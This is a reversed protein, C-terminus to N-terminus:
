EEQTREYDAVLPGLEDLLPGLFERVGLWRGVAHRYVPRRVQTASATRVQRMAGPSGAGAAAPLLGAFGHIRRAALEWDAVLDEYRLELVREPPVVQSWHAMVDHYSRYARGLDRLDYSYPLENGFYLRYQSLCCDAPHRRCHIFRSGPLMASILGMWLYNGPMKDIVVLPEAGVRGRLKAMCARGRDALSLERGPVEGDMASGLRTRLRRGGVALGDLAEEAARTEGATAAHPHSAVIHEVLSTGSRPMGIIFLPRAEAFGAQSASAHWAPTVAQELFRVLRRLATDRWPFLAKQMRGARAYHAFAVATEGVDEFARAAAYHAEVRRAPPLEDARAVAVNALRFALDGVAHRHDMGFLRLATVNGPDLDLVRAFGAQSEESRGLRRQLLALEFWADPDSPALGTARTLEALAEDGRDQAALAKGRALSAIGPEALGPAARGVMAPVDQPRALQDVTISVWDRLLDDPPLGRDIASRLAAAAAECDGAAVLCGALQRLLPVSQPHRRCARRAAAIAAAVEGAARQLHVLRLELKASLPGRGSAAALARRELATAGLEAALRALAMGHEQRIEGGLAAEICRRAQDYRGEDALRRARLAMAEPAGAGRNPMTPL